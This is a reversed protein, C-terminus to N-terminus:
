FNNLFNCELFDLKIITQRTDGTVYLSIASANRLTKSGERQEHWTLTRRKARSLPLVWKARIVCTCKAESTGLIASAESTGKSLKGLAFSLVRTARALLILLDAARTYRRETKM